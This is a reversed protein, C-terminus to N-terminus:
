IVTEYLARSHRVFLMRLSMELLQPEEADALLSTQKKLSRFNKYSVAALEAWFGTFSLM